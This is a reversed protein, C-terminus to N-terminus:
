PTRVPSGGGSGKALGPPTEGGASGEAPENRGPFSFASPAAQLSDASIEPLSGTQSPLFLWSSSQLIDGPDDKETPHEEAFFSGGSSRRSPREANRRASSLNFAVQWVPSGLYLAPRGKVEAFAELVKRLGVLDTILTGFQGYPKITEGRAEPSAALQNLSNRAM